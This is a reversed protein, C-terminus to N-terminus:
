LARLTFCKNNSMPKSSLKPQSDPEPTSPSRRISSGEDNVQVEREDVLGGAARTDNPIVEPPSM